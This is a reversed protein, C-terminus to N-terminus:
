RITVSVASIESFNILTGPVMAASYFTHHGALSSDVIPMDILTVEGSAGGDLTFRTYVWDAVWGPYFLLTDGLMAAVYFDITLRRSPNLFTVSYELSEGVTLDDDAISGTLSPTGSGQGRFGIVQAENQATCIYLTGAPGIVPSAGAKWYGDRTTWDLVIGDPRMIYINGPETYVYIKGDSDIIPSAKIAGVLQGAWVTRGSSDFKRINSGEDGVVISDPGAYAASASIPMPFTDLWQFEGERNICTFAGNTSGFLILGADTLVPTAHLEGGASYSWNLIGSKTVAYLKGDTAGVLLLEDDITVSSTYISASTLPLSWNLSGDSERLSYLNGAYNGFYVNGDFSSSPGNFVASGDGAGTSYSWKFYGDLGTCYIDGNDNGFIARGNPTILPSGGTGVIGSTPFSWRIAGTPSISYFYTNMSGVYLNAEADISPTGFLGKLFGGTPPINVELAVDLASPGVQRSHGTHHADYRFQPCFTHGADASALGSLSAIVIIVGIVTPISRVKRM